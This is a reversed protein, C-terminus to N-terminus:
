QAATRLGGIEVETGANQAVAQEYVYNASALDEVALGLSKFLTIEQESGRGAVKGLLLEGVEGQIHDASIAGERQPFLFDGAENLTSERRDVFLKAGAVAATDLERTSAISSGVANIHAGPSIWEGMLIPERAATTTCILDAGEVAERPDAIPEVTFGHRGSEREAFDRAHEPDRSWVRARRIGRALAMAELHSRAQVGSGMIALDGAGERALLRTAVGSVAATRIATIESADVIAVLRGYEAEFVLVVGQHSDYQTGHNEPFVSVVKIGLRDIDGLYAPMMGLLKPREPVWLANRLPNVARGESLTKLAAEMVEMCARMPLLDVVEAHNIIRVKM